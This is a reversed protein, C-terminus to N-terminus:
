QAAPKESHDEALIRCIEKNVESRLSSPVAFITIGLAQTVALVNTFSTPQRDLELNQLANKSIGCIKAAQELSLESDTRAMRIAAGLLATSEVMPPQFYLRDNKKM